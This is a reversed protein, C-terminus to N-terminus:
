ITSLPRYKETCLTQIAMIIQLATKLTEKLLYLLQLLLSQLSIELWKSSERIEQLMKSLLNEIHIQDAPKLHVVHNKGSFLSDVLRGTASNKTTIFDNRFHLLVRQYKPAGADITRHIEDAGILVLGGKRVRYTRDKIFYLREGSLLYYIEPYNHFHNRPM